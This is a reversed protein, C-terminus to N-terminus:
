KRRSELKEIRGAHQDIRDVIIKAKSELSIIKCYSDIIRKDMDNFNEAIRDRRKNEKLAKENRADAVARIMLTILVGLGLGIIIDVPNM